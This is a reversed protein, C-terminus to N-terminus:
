TWSSIPGHEDSSEPHELCHRVTPKVGLVDREQVLFTHLWPPAPFLRPTSMIPARTVPAADGPKTTCIGPLDPARIPPVVRPCWEPVSSSPAQGCCTLPRHTRRFSSATVNFDIHARLLDGSLPDPSADHIKEFATPSPRQPGGSREGVCYETATEAWPSSCGAPQTHVPKFLAGHPAVALLM